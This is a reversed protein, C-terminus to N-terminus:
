QLARATLFGCASKVVGPSSTASDFAINLSVVKKKSCRLREIDASTKQSKSAPGLAKEAPATTKALSGTKSVDGAPGALGTAEPLAVPAILVVIGAPDDCGKQTAFESDRRRM